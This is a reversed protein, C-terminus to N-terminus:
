VAASASLPLRRPTTTDHGAERMMLLEAPNGKTKSRPAAAKEKAAAMVMSKIKVNEGESL